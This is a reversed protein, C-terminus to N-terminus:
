FDGKELYIVRGINGLHFGKDLATTLSFLKCYLEPIYKVNTMMFSRMSGNKQITELRISGVKTAKMPRGNGITIEEDIRKWDFMGLDSNTMHCSAGSDGIWTNESFGVEKAGFNFQFISLDHTENDGKNKHDPTKHEQTNAEQNAKVNSKTDTAHFILEACEAGFNAKEPKGWKLWCVDDTHGGKGCHACKKKNKERFNRRAGNQM